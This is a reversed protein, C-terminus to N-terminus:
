LRIDFIVWAYWSKSGMFIQSARWTTKAPAEYSKGMLFFTRTKFILFGWSHIFLVNTFTVKRDLEALNASQLM